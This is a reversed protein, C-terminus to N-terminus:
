RRRYPETRDRRCLGHVITEALARELQQKDVAAMPQDYEQQLSHDDTEHAYRLTEHPRGRDSPHTPLRPRRTPRNRDPLRLWLTVNSAKHRGSHAACLTELFRGFPRPAGFRAADLLALM